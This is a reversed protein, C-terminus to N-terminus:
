KSNPGSAVQVLWGVGKRLEPAGTKSRISCSLWAQVAGRREEGLLIVDSRAASAM